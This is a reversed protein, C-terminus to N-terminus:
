GFLISWLWHNKNVCERDKMASSLEDIRQNLQKIESLMANRFVEDEKRKFSEGRDELLGFAFSLIAGGYFEIGLAALTNLFVEVAWPQTFPFVSEGLAQLRDEPIIPPIFIFCSGILAFLVALGHFGPFTLSKLLQKMSIM